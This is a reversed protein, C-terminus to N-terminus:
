NMNIKYKIRHLLNYRHIVHCINITQSFISNYKLTGCIISIFPFKVLLQLNGELIKGTMKRFNRIVIIIITHIFM